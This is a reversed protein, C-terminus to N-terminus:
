LVLFAFSHGFGTLGGMGCQPVTNAVLALGSGTPEVRFSRLLRRGRAPQTVHVV